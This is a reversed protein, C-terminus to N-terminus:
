RSALGLGFFFERRRALTFDDTGAMLYVNRAPFIKGTLRVRPSEARNFDFGELSLGWSRRGFYDLGVGLENEIFGLRPAFRGFRFGGQLSFKFREAWPDRIM